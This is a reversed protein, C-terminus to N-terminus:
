HCTLRALKISQEPPSKVEWLFGQRSPPTGVLEFELLSQDQIRYSYNKAIPDFTEVVGDKALQHKENGKTFLWSDHRSMSLSVSPYSISGLIQRVKAPKFVEIATCEFKPISGQDNIDVHVRCEKTIDDHWRREHHLGLREQMQHISLRFSELDTVGHATKGSIMKMLESIKRTVESDRDPKELSGLTSLAKAKGIPCRGALYQEFFGTAQHLTFFPGDTPAIASASIAFFYLSLRGIFTMAGHHVKLTKLRYKFM